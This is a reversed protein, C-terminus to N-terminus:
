YQNLTDLVVLGQDSPSLQLYAAVVQQETPVRPTSAYTTYDLIGHALAAMVCDGYHDNGLMGWASVKSTHDSTAPIPPLRDPRVYDAFRLTRPDTRIGKRGLRRGLGLQEVVSRAM